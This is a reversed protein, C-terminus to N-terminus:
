SALSLKFAELASCLQSKLDENKLADSEVDFSEHFNPVSLSAVVQGGFRAASAVAQELVSAGGRAGPSTSLFVAPKGAFM